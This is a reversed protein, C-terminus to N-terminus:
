ASAGSRYEVLAAVLQGVHERTHRATLSIRLRATGEPVTPPRIAVALIGRSRLFAECDLADRDAGLRIPIIQSDSPSTYFGAEHFAQHASAV